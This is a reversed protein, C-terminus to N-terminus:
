LKAGQFEVSIEVTERSKYAFDFPNATLYVAWREGKHNTLLIQARYYAGLFAKLEEAKLRSLSFKYVLKQLGPKKAYSYRTGDMARNISLTQQANQADSMEPNPLVSTTQIMPYPAQLLIM